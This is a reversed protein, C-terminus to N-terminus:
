IQLTNITKSRWVKLNELNFNDIPIETFKSLGEVLQESSGFVLDKWSVYHISEFYPQDHFIKSCKKLINCEMRKRQEKFEKIGYADIYVKYLSLTALNPIDQEAFVIRVSKVFYDDLLKTDNIHVNPYWTTNPSPNVKIMQTIKIKDDLFIRNNIIAPKYPNLHANGHESFNMTEKKNLYALNLFWSVFNGGTPGYYTVPVINKVKNNTQSM